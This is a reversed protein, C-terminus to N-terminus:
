NLYKQLNRVAVLGSELAGDIFGRWGDALDSGAFFIPGVSKQLEVLNSTMQGPKYWSWTSMVYPDTRWNHGLVYKVKVNPLLKSLEQEVVDINQIDLIGDPGFGVIISGDADDTFAMTIPSPYPAFGLWQGVPKDLQVWFKTGGVCQDADIAQKKKQEFEPIFEIRQMVNLPVAVIVARSKLIQNTKTRVLVQEPNTRNVSQIPTSLALTVNRCDNLIAQALGTTGQKIKYRDLKDFLRSTDYDGLAWWRLHDIFGGQSIDGQMNMSLFSLLIQKVHEDCELSSAVLDYRDQMSMKDYKEVAENAAFPSHPLPVVTRGQSGDVDSYKMMAKDLATFCESMSGQQLQKGNGLLISMRDATAGKSEILELGYRTVETWVHPQSWHIWTGGIEFKHNDIEATFTRGGIRDRAEVLLVKRGRLGLERAAILGTFGAGIIIVDYIEDNKAQGSQVAAKTPLGTENSGNALCFFGDNTKTLSM